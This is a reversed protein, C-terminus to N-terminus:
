AHRRGDEATHKSQTSARRARAPPPRSRPRAPSCSRSADLARDRPCRAGAQGARQPRSRACLPSGAGRRACAPLPGPGTRRLRTGAPIPSVSILLRREAPQQTLGRKYAHCWRHPTHLM